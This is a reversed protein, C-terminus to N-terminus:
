LLGEVIKLLDAKKVKSVDESYGKQVAFERLSQITMKKLDAGTMKIEQKEEEEEQDEEEEEEEEQDEEEEEDDSDDVEQDEEIEELLDESINMTEGMKIVKVTSEGISILDDDNKEDSENEDDDDEDDEEDDDEDDESVDILPEEPLSVNKVVDNSVPAYNYSMQGRSRLFNLEEAMTTVLGLMSSIKHNQEAIKQSLFVGLIGVLLFTIGLSILFPTSLFDSLGM